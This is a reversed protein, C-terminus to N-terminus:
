VGMFLDRLFSLAGIIVGIKALIAWVKPGKYRDSSRWIGVIIYIMWPLLFAYMTNSPAGILGVFFGIVAGVPISILIGVVWYSQPLSLEGDWFKHFYHKNKKDGYSITRWHHSFYVDFNL